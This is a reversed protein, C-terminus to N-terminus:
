RFLHFDSAAAEDSVKPKRRVGGVRFDKGCRRGIEDPIKGGTNGASLRGRFIIVQNITKGM